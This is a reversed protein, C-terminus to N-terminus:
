RGAAAGMDEVAGANDWTETDPGRLGADVHGIRREAHAKPPELGRVVAELEGIRREAKAKMEEQERWTKEFEDMMFGMIEAKKGIRYDYVVIDEECRAAPRQQLESLIVVDLIFSHDGPRPLARLKHFVSIRDPWTMPFKYDTRISRLILGDGRPTWLQSWLEKHAPDHHLAYNYAWNIRASEAYRNYTVNNVHSQERIDAERGEGTL